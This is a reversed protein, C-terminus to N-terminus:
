AQVNDITLYDSGIPLVDPNMINKPDILNKLEVLLDFYVGWHPLVIEGAGMNNRFVHGGEKLAYENFKRVIQTAKKVDEPDGHNWWWDVEFPSVRGFVMPGQMNFGSMLTEEYPREYKESWYRKSIKKWEKWIRPINEMKTMFACFQFAGKYACILNGDIGLAGKLNDMNALEAFGLAMPDSFAMGRSTCMEGILETKIDLEEQTLGQMIVLLPHKPMMDVLDLPDEEAMCGTMQAMIGPHNKYTADQINSQAIEYYLDVIQECAEDDDEDFSSALYFAEFDKEPFLKITVETCIGMTGNANLLMGSIDPGPGGVTSVNGANPIASAGTELIEGDPMVWKMTTMLYVNPGYKGAWGSGGNSVYNALVSTSGFSLSLPAKLRMGSVTKIKLCEFYLTRCQVAPEVTVTLSEEDIEMKRMRRLDVLIGGRQCLTLGGHNFGTSMVVVAVEYKAAIKVLAQVEETTAPLAVINPRGCAVTTFDRSY